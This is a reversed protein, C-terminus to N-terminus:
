RHISIRTASKKEDVGVFISARVTQGSRITSPFIVTGGALKVDDKDFVSFHWPDVPPSGPLVREAMKLKFKLTGLDWEFGSLSIEDSVEPEVQVILSGKFTGKSVTHSTPKAAASERRKKDNADTSEESSREANLGAESDSSDNTVDKKNDLEAEHKGHSGLMGLLMLSAWGASWGLKQRQTWRPHSWVLFLGAPFCFLLSIGVALPNHIISRLQEPAIGFPAEASVAPKVTSQTPIPPPESRQTGRAFLGKVKSAPVWDTMGDKWVLDGPQLQGSAALAKLEDQSIPGHQEGDRSYHWEKAM